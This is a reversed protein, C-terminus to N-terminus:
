KRLMMEREHEELSFAFADIKEKLYSYVVKDYNSQSYPMEGQMIKEYAKIEDPSMSETDKNKFKKLKEYNEIHYDEAKFLVDDSVPIFGKRFMRCYSLAISDVNEESDGYVSFTPDNAISKLTNEWNDKSIPIKKENLLKRLAINLLKQIDSGILIRPKGDRVFMGDLIESFISPADYPKSKDFLKIDETNEKPLGLAKLINEKNREICKGLIKACGKATPLYVAYLADFRGSRFFEKPLGGIDNATAFIFCPKTNDQMWGLMYGFMRKFAGSDSNSNSSASSFGKELEDIWLVCPSMAEAIKLADRMKQESGGQFKDMLSGMDMKLLPLDGLKHATFKAAESKGCGPIGCLLVGKPPLVGIKREYYNPKDIYPTINNTLWKEFNDMDGIKGDASCLELLDGQMRQCKHGRIIKKVKASNEFSSTAMLRRMMLEIEEVRFGLFDTCLSSVYESNETLVSIGSAETKIIERIEEVEPYDVDIFETYTSLMEPLKPHSSYLIVASSQLFKYQRHEPNEHDVVYMELIKFIDQMQLSNKNEENSFDPIKRVWLFPEAIQNKGTWYVGNKSIPLNNQYNRCFDHIKGNSITFECEYLPRNVKLDDITFENNLGNSILVILPAEKSTILKHIFVDSDTRIYIIPTGGLLANRCKNLVRNLVKDSM